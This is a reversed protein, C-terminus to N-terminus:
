KKSTTESTNKDVDIKTNPEDLKDLLVTDSSINEKKNEENILNLTNSSNDNQTEQPIQSDSETYNVKELM